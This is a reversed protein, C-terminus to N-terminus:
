RSKIYYVSLRDERNHAMCPMKSSRPCDKAMVCMECFFQEGTTKTRIILNRLGENIKNTIIEVTEQKKESM